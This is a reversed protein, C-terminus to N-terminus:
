REGASASANYHLRNRDGSVTEEHLLQRLLATGMRRPLHNAADSHSVGRRGERAPRRETTLDRVKRTSERRPAHDPPRRRRLRGPRSRDSREGSTRTARWGRGFSRWIEEAPQGSMTELGSLMTTLM